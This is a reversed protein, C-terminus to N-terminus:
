GWLESLRPVIQKKRSMVKPLFVENETPMVNYAQSITDEDGLFLLYTGERLVDTIMLLIFDYNELKKKRAMENLFEEKRKLLTESSLSTIQAIGLKYGAIHFEKFDSYMLEEVPNDASAESSFM